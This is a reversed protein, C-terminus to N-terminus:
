TTLKRVMHAVRHQSSLTPIATSRAFAASGAYFSFATTIGLLKMTLMSCPSSETQLQLKYSSDARIYASKLWANRSLYCCWHTLMRTTIAALAASARSPLPNSPALGGALQVPSASAAIQQPSPLQFPWALQLTPPSVARRDAQRSQNAQRDGQQCEM